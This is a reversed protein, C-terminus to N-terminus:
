LERIFYVKDKLEAGDEIIPHHYHRPFYNELRHSFVFGCREYFPVTLPSDGTGVLMRRGEGRYFDCVHEVLARGYGRRRHPELTALNQIEYLGAGERTVVCCSVPEPTQLVFLRGRGLYRRIMSEQEDALLLWPMYAEKGEEVIKVSWGDRM